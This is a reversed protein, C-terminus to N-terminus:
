RGSRQPSGHRVGEGDMEELNQLLQQGEHQETVGHQNPCQQEGAPRCVEQHKFSLEEEAGAAVPQGSAVPEM